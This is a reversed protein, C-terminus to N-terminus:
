LYLGKLFDMFFPILERKDIANNGDLDYNKFVQYLILLQEDEDKSEIYKSLVQTNMKITFKMLDKTIM